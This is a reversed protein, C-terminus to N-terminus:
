EDVCDEEEDDEAVDDNYETLSPIGLAKLVLQSPDTPVKDLKGKAKVGLKKLPKTFAKIMKNLGKVIYNIMKLFYELMIYSGIFMFVVSISAIFLVICLIILFIYGITTLITMFVSSKNDTQTAGGRIKKVM